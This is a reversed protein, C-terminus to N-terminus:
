PWAVEIEALIEDMGEAGQELYTTMGHSLSSTSERHYCPWRHPQADPRIRRVALRRIGASRGRRPLLPDAGCEGRHNGLELLLRDRRSRGAGPHVLRGLGGGLTGWGSRHSAMHRM